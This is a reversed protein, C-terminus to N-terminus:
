TYSGLNNSDTSSLIAIAQTDASVSKVLLTQYIMANGTAKVAAAELISTGTKTKDRSRTTLLM